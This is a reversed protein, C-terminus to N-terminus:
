EDGERTLGERTLLSSTRKPDIKLELETTRITLRDRTKRHLSRERLYLTISLGSITLSLTWVVSINALVKLSLDAISTQGAYATAAQSFEHIAYGIVGWM